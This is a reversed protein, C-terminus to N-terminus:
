TTTAVSPSWPRARWTAPTGVAKAAGISAATMVYNIVTLVEFRGVLKCLARVAVADEHM